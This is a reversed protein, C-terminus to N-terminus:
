CMHLQICVTKVLELDGATCAAGLAGSDRIAHVVSLSLVHPLVVAPHVDPVGEGCVCPVHCHNRRSPAGSPLAGQAWLELLVYPTAKATTIHDAFERAAVVVGCHECRRNNRLCHLQHAQMNVEPICRGCNSCPVGDAGSATGDAAAAATASLGIGDGASSSRSMSTTSTEPIAAVLSGSRMLAGDLGVDLSGARAFASMARQIGPLPPRDGLKRASGGAGGSLLMSRAHALQQTLRENEEELHKVRARLTAVEGSGGDAPKM